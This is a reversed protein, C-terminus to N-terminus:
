RTDGSFYSIVADALAAATAQPSVIHTSLGAARASDVTTPGICAITLRQLQSRLPLLARVASPSCFVVCNVGADIAEAVDGLREVSRTSYAVPDVVGVGHQRLGASLTTLAHAARPHLVSTPRSLLPALQAVLREASHPQAILAVPIDREHLARATTPGVAAVSRSKLRATDIGLTEVRRWCAAVGHASTFAMWHFSEITQLARDLEPTPIRSDIEIAPQWVVRAGARRLLEPLSDGATFPRTVLVTTGALPPAHSLAIM